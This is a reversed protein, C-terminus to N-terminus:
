NLDNANTTKGIFDNFTSKGYQKILTDLGEEELRRTSVGIKANRLVKFKKVRGLRKIYESDEGFTLDENFGGCKDHLEKEVIIGYCGAGHPKIHEVSIMFLNAINHVIKDQSKESLPLMQTIGIGLREMRFEYLVKRLYEDTLELDSDLFLLYKGKAIKAGNNRGVAPMGGDVIICGYEKAIERTKDTSNADAVIVEYDSFNQNKISELLKPLYEEENFTPIIISLIM